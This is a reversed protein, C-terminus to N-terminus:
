SDEEDMKRLYERTLPPRFWFSVGAVTLGFRARCVGDETRTKRGICRGDLVILLLVILMM